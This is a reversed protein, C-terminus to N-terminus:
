EQQQRLLLVLVRRGAEECRYLATVSPLVIHEELLPVLEPHTRPIMREDLFLHTVGEKRMWEEVESPDIHPLPVFRCGAYFAVEPKRSSVVIGEMGSNKLYLGAERYELPYDRGRVSDVSYWTSLVALVALVVVTPLNLSIREGRERLHLSPGKRSEFLSLLVAGGAGSWINLLPVFSVFFRRLPFYISFALLFLVILIGWLIEDSSRKRPICLGIVALVFLVHYQAGPLKDLFNVVATRVTHGLVITWEERLFKGIKYDSVFNGGATRSVSLGDRAGEGMERRPPEPPIRNVWGSVVDIEKRRYVDRYTLYFNYRGKESPIMRGTRVTLLMCYPVILIMAGLLFLLGGTKAFRGIGKVKGAFMVLFLFTGGLLIAGEPRTTTLLAFLLGALIFFRKGERRLAESVALLSAVFLLTFLSETLYLESYLILRPHFATFFAGLFGGAKGVTMCGLFFVIPVTLGGCVASVLGGSLELNETMRAVLGTLVPYLPPWAPNLIRFFDGHQVFGALCGYYASDTEIVQILQLLTLRMVLAVVTLMSIAVVDGRGICGQHM